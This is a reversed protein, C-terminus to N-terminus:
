AHFAELDLRRQVDAQIVAQKRKCCAGLHFWYRQVTGDINVAVYRATTGKLIRSRCASCAHACDTLIDENTFTMTDPM